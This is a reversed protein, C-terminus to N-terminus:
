RIAGLMSECTGARHESSMSVDDIAVRRTALPLATDFAADFAAADTGMSAAQDRQTARFAALDAQSADCAQAYAYSTAAAGPLGLDVLQQDIGRAEAGPDGADRAAGAVDQTRAQVEGQAGEAAAADTDSPSDNCGALAGTALAVAVALVLTRTLPM